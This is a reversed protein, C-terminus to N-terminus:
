SAIAQQITKLFGNQAFYAEYVRRANAIIRAAEDPHTLYYRCKEELDALDWRVPVYTEGEIFIQPNTELHAMSPKVLLGDYCIAEFDRWCTEGWGFPSFIIRSSKLERFYQRRPVLSTGEFGGSTAVKYDAKLPNLAEVAAYRYQYYWEKQNASGLSLRCFIDISKSPKLFPFLPKRLAQKFKKSTGLNWGPSIRDEYGEPVVSGVSWDDFDFKLERSLYDTFMSGGVFQRKYNDRQKYCQRKLFRDVYPLLNFYKTSAQAYPDVFILKRSPNDARVAAIAKEAESPSERWSPLLFVIDSDNKQCAERIEAFTEAPIQEVELNLERRLLKRNYIFPDRQAVAIPDKRYGIVLAKM